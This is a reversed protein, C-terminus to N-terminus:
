YMDFAAQIEDAQKGHALALALLVRAKAPSLTDGAVTGHLADDFEMNRMVIGTATRPARVVVVGKRTASLVAEAMAESLSASGAGAVVLGKAGAEVLASVAVGSDDQHGVVIDVRPLSNLDIVDFETDCTHTRASRKYLRVQNDFVWGLIGFVPARFSDVTMTDMKHVDRAAIIQDNMVVLVGLGVTQISVAAVVARYLNMPGDASLSTSPRMAGTVVVTKRSKVVLNLFYATEELTNTGVTVVLGTCDTQNLWFNVRRALHLLTAGGLNQSAVQAVQESELDAVDKLPPIAMLLEDVGTVAARYGAYQTSSAGSGAITGGTGLVAVKPLKSTKM